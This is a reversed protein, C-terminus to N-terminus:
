TQKDLTACVNGLALWVGEYDSNEAHQMAQKFHKAVITDDLVDAWFKKIAQLWINFLTLTAPLVHAQASLRM